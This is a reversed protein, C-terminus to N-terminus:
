FSFPLQKGGGLWEQSSIISWQQAIGTVFGEWQSSNHSHFEIPTM